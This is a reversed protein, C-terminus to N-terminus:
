FYKNGANWLAYGKVGADNSAKIQEDIYWQGYNSVRWSFAQLWPRIETNTGELYKQFLKISENVFYYPHDGPSDFGAFGSGFHSPYVMPYVTDIYPGLCEMRQGTSRADYGNNWVIVGYVDLGLKSEYPALREHVKFIFDRIIEYKETTAEDFNYKTNNVPGLTPFRIYDFQIEDIGAKALEETLDLIYNQTEENSPDLWVSGERNEWLGGHSNKIALDPRNKSLNIDKFVVMRATLHIGKDHWYRVYNALNPISIHKDAGTEKVMSVSSPYYVYGDIEKVDFVIMNGGREKMQEILRKGEDSIAYYGTLYIGWPTKVNLPHKILIAPIDPVIIEDEPEFNSKPNAKLLDNKFDSLRYQNSYKFFKESISEDENAITYYFKGDKFKLGDPKSLPPNNIRVKSLKYKLSKWLISAISPPKANTPKCTQYPLKPADTEGHVDLNEAGTDVVNKNPTFKVDLDFKKPEIIENSHAIYPIFEPVKDSKATEEPERNFWRKWEDDIAQIRRIKYPDFDKNNPTLAPRAGVLFAVKINYETDDYKGHKIFNLLEGDPYHGLPYALAGSSYDRGLKKNVYAKNKALTKQIEDATLTALDEHGFTHNGIERSTAILYKLKAETYEPQRFSNPLVFFTAATGFDPHDEHFKNMIGIACNPDISGDELIRFQGASADDFTILFPKKGKEIPFKMKLFQNVTIPRYDNNYLWLLDNYFSEPSRTWRANDTDFNHYELVPIREKGTLEQIPKEIKKETKVVTKKVPPTVIFLSNVVVFLAFVGLIFLSRKM